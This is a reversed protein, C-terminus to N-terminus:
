SDVKPKFKTSQGKESARSAHRYCLAQPTLGPVFPMQGRLGAFRAVTGFFLYREHLM